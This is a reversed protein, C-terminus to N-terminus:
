EWQSSHSSNKLTPTLRHASVDYEDSLPGNKTELQGAGNYGYLASGVADVMYTVRPRKLQFSNDFGLVRERKRFSSRISRRM